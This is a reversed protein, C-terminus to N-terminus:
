GVKQTEAALLDLADGLRYMPLLRGGTMEHGKVAIRGRKAWQWVRQATLPEGGLWSVARALDTANVLYDEAAKLLWARRAEVDYELDCERCTVTTAGTKAYLDRECQDCRGAYWKDAPRDVFGRLQLELHTLEDLIEPGFDACRILSPYWLLWQCCAPVRDIPLPRSPWHDHVVRVWTTITNQVADLLATGDPVASLPEPAHAHLATIKCDPDGCPEFRLLAVTTTLTARTDVWVYRAFRPDIPLTDGRGGQGGYRTLKARVNDLDTWHAAINAIAQDLTTTCTACLTAGQVPRGCPCTM